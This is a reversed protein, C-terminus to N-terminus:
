DSPIESSLKGIKRLVSLFASFSALHKGKGSEVTARKLIQSSILLLTALSLM